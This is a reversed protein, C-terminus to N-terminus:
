PQWLLYWWRQRQLVLGVVLMGVLLPPMGAYKSTAAAGDVFRDASWLLLILGSILSLIALLM